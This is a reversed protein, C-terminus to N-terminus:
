KTIAKKLTKGIIRGIVYTALVMVGVYLVMFLMNFLPANGSVRGGEGVVELYHIVLVIWFFGTLIKSKIGYGKLTFLILYVGGCMLNFM